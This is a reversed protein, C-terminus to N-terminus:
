KNVDNNKDVAAYIAIVYMMTVPAIFRWALNKACFNIKDKM